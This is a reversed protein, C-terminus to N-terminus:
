MRIVLCQGMEGAHRVERQCSTVSQEARTMPHKILIGMEKVSVYEELFGATDRALFRKLRNRHIFGGCPLDSSTYRELSTHFVFPLSTRAEYFPSSDWDVFEHSRRSTTVDTPLCVRTAYALSSELVVSMLFLISKGSSV